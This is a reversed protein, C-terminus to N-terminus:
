GPPRDSMAPVVDTAQGDRLAAIVEDVTEVVQLFAWDRGRNLMTARVTDLLTRWEGGLLILPVRPILGSAILTWTLSWESLTGYGGRLCVFGSAPLILRQLRDFLDDVYIEDDLWTNPQAPRYVEMAIGITRGGAARAGQAVARMTGGTGGNCVTYGAEALRQGLKYAERYLPEGERPQSSGFVTVIPAPM